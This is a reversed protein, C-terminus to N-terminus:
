KIKDKNEEEFKEILIEAEKKDVDSELESMSLKNKQDVLDYFESVKVDSEIVARQQETFLDLFTKIGVQLTKPTQIKKDGLTENIRYAIYTDRMSVM